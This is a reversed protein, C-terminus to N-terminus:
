ATRQWVYVTLYPPMNDVPTQTVGGNLEFSHDHTDDSTNRTSGSTLLVTRASGSAGNAGIYFWHSHTYSDTTVTENPLEDRSIYHEEDGGTSGANHYDGASLLFKDKIQTWTGGFLIAPSTSNVSMYISGVPYISNLLSGSLTRLAAGIAQMHDRLNQSDCLHEANLAAANAYSITTIYDDFLNVTNSWNDQNVQQAELQTRNDTSPRASSVTTTVSATPEEEYVKWTYDRPDTSETSSSSTYTGVYAKGEYGVLTFGTKGDSSDAWASHAYLGGEIQIVM